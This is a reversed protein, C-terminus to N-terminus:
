LLFKVLFKVLLNSSSSSSNVLPEELALPQLQLLLAQQPQLQV